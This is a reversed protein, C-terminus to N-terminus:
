TGLDPDVVIPAYVHWPFTKVLQRSFEVGREPNGQPGLRPSYVAFGAVGPVVIMMAGSVGSKAPLGVTFAFEGSFDYMGCSLMLSLVDKVTERQFVQRETVPCVGGNALTAAVAALRRADAEISCCRLYLELTEFLDVERPFAGHERMFYALAYNRDAHNRESEFTAEDFGPGDGAAASKWVRSIFDFRSAITQTPRILATTMIAGANIMPNHPRKKRDLTISNFSQGSPERGVYDHVVREGLLELAIAYNVPKMVSQVCFNRERDGERAGLTFRQGDITCCGLSFADPDAKALEPIYTAVEGRNEQAAYHFLDSIRQRFRAFGGTVLDGTVARRVLQCEEAPLAERFTERDIERGGIREFAEVTQSLRPDRRELGQAEIAELVRDGTVPGDGALAEFAEEGAQRVGEESPRGEGEFQAPRTSFAGHAPRKYTKTM